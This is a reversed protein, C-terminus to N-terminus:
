ISSTNGVGQREAKEVQTEIEFASVKSMGDVSGSLLRTDRKFFLLKARRRGSQISYANL